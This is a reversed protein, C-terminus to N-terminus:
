KDKKLVVKAKMNVPTPFKPAKRVSYIFSKRRCQRIVEKDVENERYKAFNLAEKYGTSLQVSAYQRLEESATADASICELIKKKIETFAEEAPIVQGIVPPECTVLSILVLLGIIYKM